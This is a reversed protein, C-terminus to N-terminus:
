MCFEEFGKTSLSLCTSNKKKPTTKKAELLPDDNEWIHLGGMKLNQQRSPGELLFSTLRTKGFFVCWRMKRDGCNSLPAFQFFFASVLDPSRQSIIPQHKRALGLQQGGLTNTGL